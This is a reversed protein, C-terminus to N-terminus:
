RTVAKETAPLPEPALRDLEAVVDLVALASREVLPRLRRYLAADEPDPHTANATPVLDAARDLDPLEGLAHRALLCAGLATGEPVDAVTVPLDLASALVSVWLRSAAAGGTARIETVPCGEADFSDRVLALQQCVGEVAARVLHPRAHERRLGLYAGRMGPRWWPAREGLLYPLCLLGESGARIGAAEALLAADLDDAGEGAVGPARDPAGAALSQAAWRVVSGANNVAGGIVWRDETLAYCFLRGAADATPRDVVTRLAGSTGLSVAAVGPPTAGVGLNALPGDAAGIILPVDPPLGAATAVEPSLRLAHTTPVVEALQGPRVGAIALAEDDWRRSHIDYLGTGSAISLDVLFPDDALAAVILEKVGGWRPTGRLTGPDEEAWWALKTLPSMPHVPTGTRAQLRKAPGAAVIKECQRASRGDAWTVVPGLPRGAADMPLLAHLFSSLSVAIVRDGRERCEAAVDALAKMAARTLQRPDLEARGPGPVSLPYHVSTLARLEGAPGAAVGKTATTGTDIGIVVDM